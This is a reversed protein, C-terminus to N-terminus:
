VGALYTNGTLPFFTMCAEGRSLAPHFWHELSALPRKVILRHTSRQGYAEGRM